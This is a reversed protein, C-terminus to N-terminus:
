YLGHITSEQKETGKRFIYWAYNVPSSHKVEIGSKYCNIRGSHIYVAELYGNKYIRKYRDKGALYSINMLAIYRGYTPLIEMAHLVFETALSYPPNTIITAVGDPVRSCDLFNVGSIGYGRNKLDTSYVKKCYRELVRSLAGDGCACEWVVGSIKYQALFMELADPDTKYFDDEARKEPHWVTSMGMM